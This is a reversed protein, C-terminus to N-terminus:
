NTGGLLKTVDIDFVIKKAKKMSKIFAKKDASAELLWTVQSIQIKLLELLTNDFHQHQRNARTGNPLLPNIRDLRERVSGPFYDYIYANIFKACALQGQKLGYLDELAKWFRKTYRCQWTTAKEPIHEELLRQLVADVYAKVEDESPEQRKPQWGTVKHSLSRIGWRGVFRFMVLAKPTCYRGAEFAFYEIISHVAQDPIGETRWTPLVAGDFGQLILFASLKSPTQATGTGLSKGLSSDDVDVLRAAGRVTYFGRGSEDCRVEKSLEREIEVMNFDVMNNKQEM